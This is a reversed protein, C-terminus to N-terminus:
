RGMKAKVFLFVVLGLVFITRTIGEFIKITAM